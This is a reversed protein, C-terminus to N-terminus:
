RIPLKSQSVRIDPFKSAMKSQFIVVKNKRSTKEYNTGLIVEDVLDSINRYSHSDLSGAVIPPEKSYGYNLFSRKSNKDRQVQKSHSSEMQLARFEDEDKFSFDKFLYRIYELMEIDEPTARKTQFYSALKELSHRLADLRVKNWKLFNGVPKLLVCYSQENNGKLNFDYDKASLYEDFATMYVVQYLPPLNVPRRGVLASTVGQYDMLYNEVIVEDGNSAHVSSSFYNTPSLEIHQLWERSKNFVLCCGSAEVNDEKGYLRFQNLDGVRSSFCLFFPIIDKSYIQKDKLMNQQNVFEILGMGESVDNMGEPSYMRLPNSPINPCSEEKEEDFGFLIRSVAPSTYHAFPIGKVEISDILLVGLISIVIESLESSKKGRFVLHRIRDKKNKLYEEYQESLWLLERKKIELITCIRGREPISITDLERNNLCFLVNNCVRSADELRELNQYCVVLNYQAILYDRLSIPTSKKEFDDSLQSIIKIAKELYLHKKTFDETEKAYTICPTILHLLATNKLGQEEFTSAVLDEVDCEIIVKELLVLKEEKNKQNNALIIYSYIILVTVEILKSKEKYEIALDKQYNFIDWARQISERIKESDKQYAAQNLYCGGLGQLAKLIESRNDLTQALELWNQYSAIALNFYYDSSVHSHPKQAFRCYYFAIWSYYLLKHHSTEDLDSEAQKQRYAVAQNLLQEAKVNDTTKMGYEFYCNSLFGLYDKRHSSMLSSLEIDEVASELYWIAKKFNKVISNGTTYKGLMMYARGIYYKTTSVIEFYSGDFDAINLVKQLNDLAKQTLVVVDRVDLQDVLQYAKEVYCVGLKHYLGVFSAVPQNQHTTRNNDNVKLLTEYHEIASDYKEFLKLKFACEFYFAALMQSSLNQLEESERRVPLKDIMSKFRKLSNEAEDLTTKLLIIDDSNQFFQVYLMNLNRLIALEAGVNCGEVIALAVKENEIKQLIELLSKEGITVM